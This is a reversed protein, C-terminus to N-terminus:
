QAPKTMIPSPQYDAGVARFIIALPLRSVRRGQYRIIYDAGFARFIIALPLRSVRRGHHRIIYDAGFARFIIALPLRSARRGQNLGSLFILAQFASINRGKLASDFISNAVLPSTSAESRVQGQSDYKAGNASSCTDFSSSDSADEM